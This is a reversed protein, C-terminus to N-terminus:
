HSEKLKCRRDGRCDPGHGRSGRAGPVHDTCMISFAVIKGSRAVLYGSSARAEGLTGTKAFVKGDLAAQKFRGSLSGDAGGGPLSQPFGRGLEATGCLWAAHHLGAADGPRTSLAWM